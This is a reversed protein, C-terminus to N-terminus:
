PASRSTGARRGSADAGVAVQVGDGVRVLGLPRHLVRGGVQGGVLGQEGGGDAGGGQQVGVGGQDALELGGLALDLGVGAGVRRRQLLQEVRLRGRRGRGGADVGAARVHDRVGVLGRRRDAVALVDAKLRDPRPADDAVAGRDVAVVQGRQGVAGVVRPGVHVDGVPAVVRDVGGAEVHGALHLGVEHGVGLAVLGVDGAQGAEAAAGGAVLGVELLGGDDGGRHVLRQRGVVVAGQADGRGPRRAPVGGAGDVDLAAGLDVDLDLAADDGGGGDLGAGGLGHGDAVGPGALLGLDDVAGGAGHDDGRGGAGGNLTGTM